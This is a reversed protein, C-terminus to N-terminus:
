CVSPSRACKVCLLAGIQAVPGAVAGAVWWSLTPVEPEHKEETLM